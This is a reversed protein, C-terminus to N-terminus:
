ARTQNHPTEIPVSAVGADRGFSIVFNGKTIKFVPVDIVPKKPKRVRKPKTVLALLASEM